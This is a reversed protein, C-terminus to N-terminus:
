AASAEAGSLWVHLLVIRGSTERKLPKAADGHGEAHEADRRRQRGAGLAVHTSRAVVPLRRRGLGLEDGKRRQAAVLQQADVRVVFLRGRAAAIRVGRGAVCRAVLGIRRLGPELADRAVGLTRTAASESVLVHELAGHARLSAAAVGVALASADRLLDDDVVGRALGAEATSPDLRQALEAALLEADALVVEVLDGGFVEFGRTRTGHLLSAADRRRALFLSEDNGVGAASV